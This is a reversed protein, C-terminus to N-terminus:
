ESSGPEEPAGGHLRLQSLAAWRPDVASAGSGADSAESGNAENDGAARPDHRGPDPGACDPRCLPALPLALLLTDRVLEGLDILEGDLLYTEGETPVREFIERVEARLEGSADGLCRRCSAVFPAVVEGTVTVKDGSAEVILDLEVPSGAPVEADGVVLRDAMVTRRVESRVGPRRLLSTVPVVYARDSRM